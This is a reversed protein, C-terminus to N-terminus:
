EEFGDEDSIQYNFYKSIFKSVTYDSTLVHFGSFQSLIDAMKKWDEFWQYASIKYEKIFDSERGNEREIARTLCTNVDYPMLMYVDIRSWDLTTFDMQDYWGFIFDCNQKALANFYETSALRMNTTFMNKKADGKVKLDFDVAFFGAKNLRKMATTKGMGPLSLVLHTIHKDGEYERQRIAGAVMVETTPYIFNIKYQSSQAFKLLQPYKDFIDKELSDENRLNKSLAVRVNEITNVVVQRIAVPVSPHCPILIDGNGNHKIYHATIVDLAMELLTSSDLYCEGYSWPQTLMHHPAFAKHEVETPLKVKDEDHMVLQFDDFRDNVVSYLDYIASKHNCLRAYEEPHSVSFQERVRLDNNNAYYNSLADPYAIKLIPFQKLDKKM